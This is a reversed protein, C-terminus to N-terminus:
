TVSPRSCPPVLDDIHTPVLMLPQNPIEQAVYLSRLDLGQDLVGKRDGDKRLRGLEFRDARDELGEVSGALRERRKLQDAGAGEGTAQTKM